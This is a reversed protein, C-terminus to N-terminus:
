SLKGNLKGFLGWKESFSTFTFEFGYGKGVNVGDNEGIELEIQIGMKPNNQKTNFVELTEPLCEEKYVTDYGYGNWAKMQMTRLFLHIIIM